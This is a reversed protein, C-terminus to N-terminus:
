IDNEIFLRAQFASSIVIEQRGVFAWPVEYIIVFGCDGGSLMGKVVIFYTVGDGNLARSVKGDVVCGFRM